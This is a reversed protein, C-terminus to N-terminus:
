SIVKLKFFNIKTLFELQFYVNLVNQEQIKLSLLSLTM